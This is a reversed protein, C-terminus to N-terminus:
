CFFLRCAVRTRLGHVCVFWVYMRMDLFFMNRFNFLLLFRVCLCVRVGCLPVFLSGRSFAFLCGCECMRACM